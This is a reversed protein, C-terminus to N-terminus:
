LECNYSLMIHEPETTVDRHSSGNAASHLSILAAQAFEKAQNTMGTDVVAQLAELINSNALLAERGPPFVALQAACESHYTQNWAKLEPKLDARPHNPDVFLADVSDQVCCDAAFCQAASTAVHLDIRAPHNGRSM